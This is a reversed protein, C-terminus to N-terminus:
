TAELGLSRVISRIGIAAGSDPNTLILPKRQRVSQWVCDDYPITGLVSMSVGFYKECAEAIAHGLRQEQDTRVQNVILKFPLRRLEERLLNGAEDNREGVYSVLDAPTKLGRSEPDRIADKLIPKFSWSTQLHKLRRYYAAKIFRYANEISTPEPIVTLM